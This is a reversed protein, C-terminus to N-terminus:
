SCPLTHRRGPGPWRGPHVEVVFGQYVCFAYEIREVRRRDLRWVGRTWEYLEEPSLNLPDVRTINFLVGPERIRM